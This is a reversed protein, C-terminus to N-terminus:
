SGGGRGGLLFSPFHLLLSPLGGQFSYYSCSFFFILLFPFFLVFIFLFFLLFLFLPYGIGAPSFFVTCFPRRPPIPLPCFGSDFGSPASTPQGSIVPGGASQPPSAPVCLLPLVLHLSVLPLLVLSLFWAGLFFSFLSLCRLFLSSSPTYFV